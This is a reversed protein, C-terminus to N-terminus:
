FSPIGHSINFSLAANPIIPVGPGYKAVFFDAMMRGFVLAGNDNLHTNDSPSLNLIHAATPGIAEVYDMSSKHLDFSATTKQEATLLTVDAWPQLIDDFTGNSFWNRRTLSTVLIPEAKAVTSGVQQETARIQDVMIALNAGMTEPPAIKQDNHGFQMTVFTRRGRGDAFFSGTTEGSFATIVCPIGAALDACFGPGWGGNLYTTSDGALVFATSAAGVRQAVTGAAGAIILAILLPNVALM